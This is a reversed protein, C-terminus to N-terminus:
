STAPAHVAGLSQHLSVWVREIMACFPADLIGLATANSWLGHVALLRRMLETADLAPSSSSPLLLNELASIDKNYLYTQLYPYMAPSPLALPVVPITNSSSPTPLKPLKACHASLVIEHAPFLTVKTKEASSKPKSAYVALMHTPPIADVYDNAILQLEKPLFGFRQPPNTFSLDRLGALMSDKFLSLKERVYEDSVDQIAPSPSPM